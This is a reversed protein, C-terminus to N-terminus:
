HKGMKTRLLNVDNHIEKIKEFNKCIVLPMLQNNVCLPDNMQYTRLMKRFVLM